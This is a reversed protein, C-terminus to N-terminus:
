NEAVSKHNGGVKRHTFSVDSSTWLGICFMVSHNEQKCYNNANM